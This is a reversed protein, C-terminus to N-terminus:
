TCNPRPIRQDTVSPCLHCAGDPLLQVLLTNSSGLRKDSL